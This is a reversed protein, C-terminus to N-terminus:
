APGRRFYTVLTMDLQVTGGRASGVNLDQVLFFRPSRELEQMFALLNAYSGEVRTTVELQIM